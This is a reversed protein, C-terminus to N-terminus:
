MVSVSDTETRNGYSPFPAAGICASMTNVPPVTLVPAASPGTSSAGATVPPLILASPVSADGGAAAAGDHDVQSSAGQQGREAVPVHVGHHPPKPRSPAGTRSHVETSPM